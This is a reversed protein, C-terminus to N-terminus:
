LEDAILTMMCSPRHVLYHQILVCAVSSLCVRLTVSSCHKHVALMEPDLLSFSVLIKLLEVIYQKVDYRDTLHSSNVLCM